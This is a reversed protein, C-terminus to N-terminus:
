YTILVCFTSLCDATGDAHSQVSPFHTLGGKMLQTKWLKLKGKLSDNTSIIKIITKKKGQLETNLKNLIATIIKTKVELREKYCYQKWCSRRLRAMM